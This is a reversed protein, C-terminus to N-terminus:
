SGSATLLTETNLVADSVYIPIGFVETPFPAPQGVANTATRSDRLQKLSRRSMFLANPYFETGFESLLDAILDDTLGKGSDATLNCIRGIAKYNTLQCGVYGSIAQAWGWFSAGDGDFCRTYQIEGEGFKGDQGFAYAVGQLATHVAFVSSGTSETTGGADIVMDDDSNDLLAAVGAFGSADADVGYWTQSAIAKFAAALHAQAQIAQAAAVGWECARAAAEDIDWSADLFYCDVDRTTLTAKQTERGSNVSRFGVSPDATKVLTKYSTKTIPTAYMVQLEPISQIVQNIMGVLEESNNVALVDAATMRAITM